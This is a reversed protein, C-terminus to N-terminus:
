NDVIPIKFTSTPTTDDYFQQIITRKKRRGSIWSTRQDSDISTLMTSNRKTSTPTSKRRNFKQQHYLQPKMNLLVRKNAMINRETITIDYKTTSKFPTSNKHKHLEHQVRRLKTYNHKGSAHTWFSNDRQKVM